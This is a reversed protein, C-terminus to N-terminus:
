GRRRKLDAVIERAANAGPAGTIGGGPHAGAGCLYLARLPMRYRGYGYLPRWAFFQDLGPEAHFPHGQTLGYSRELDLPTVVQREVVMGSIGPAVEELRKVVVDGLEERRADWDGDTVRYPVWQALVSLVHRGDPALSPDSLTPITAELFPADSMSGYKSADFASELDDIGATIVIRGRLREDEAQGFRPLGDLAVNVKAVTGPARINSARWGLSPGLAVPDVLKLLTRKPDAGSVVARARIEQGGTLAVGTARDGDATIAAVEAGYRVEAGASRAAGVLAEALAGPGGAAFTAQGAAGGGGVSDSLLVAATGASWPGMATYQVGRAAIAGRLLETQFADQVLDAVAMPLVRLVERTNGPGGLRRLGRLLRAGGVADSLSPVAPDPPTMVHLHAMFSALSRLKRDFRPYVEADGPSHPRLEEATRHPDSWLTLSRGDPSPVFARVEPEILRLGHTALGLRRILSRRFRGVTHAAVPVRYGPAVVETDAAGGPRDRRELVVVELGARALLAACILGNHGAGIVVADLTGTV